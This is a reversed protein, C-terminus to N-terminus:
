TEIRILHRFILSWGIIDLSCGCFKVFLSFIQFLTSRLQFLFSVMQLRAKPNEDSRLPLRDAKDLQVSAFGGHFLDIWAQLVFICICLLPFIILFIPRALIFAFFKNRPVDISMVKRMRFLICLFHKGFPLLSGCQVFIM